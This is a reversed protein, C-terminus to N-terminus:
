QPAIVEKSVLEVSIIKGHLAENIIQFQITYSNSSSQTYDYGEKLVKNGSSLTFIAGEPYWYGKNWYLESQALIKVDAKFRASFTSTSTYFKNYLLEGQVKQLYTHTLAKLKKNQLTGNAYFFGEAGTNPEMTPNFGNKMQWYAWGSCLVEDCLQIVSEIEAVCADNDWCDGFESIFLPVGLREADIARTNIRKSHWELCDAARSLPPEGSACIDASLQCCYTHDNLIHKDKHQAGGPVETFGLHAVLGGLIGIEDPFQSPEFFSIKPDGSALYAENFARTYLPQLKESDFLGPEYILSLNTYINSPFPENLPDYGIVNPNSAFRNAVKKWYAVYADTLNYPEKNTYLRDFIEISEPSPYYGVWNNKFCDDLNPNGDADWRINPYDHLSKCIGFDQALLPIEGGECKTPLDNAYFVPMGEGCVRKSIVDQHGDVLTYIGNQGLKNILKEVEDLYTDNYNGKATREVAEWMVGMRVFNFGWQKMLEIESDAIDLTYPEIKYVVNVGHFILTRGLADQISRTTTNVFFQQQYAARSLLVFLSSLLIRLSKM